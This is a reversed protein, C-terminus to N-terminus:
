GEGESDTIAAPTDLHNNLYYYVGKVMFDVTNGDCLGDYNTKEFHQNVLYMDGYGM